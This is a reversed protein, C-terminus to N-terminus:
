NQNSCVNFIKKAVFESSLITFGGETNTSWVCLHAKKLENPKNQM